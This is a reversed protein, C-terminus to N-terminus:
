GGKGANQGAQCPSGQDDIHTYARLCIHRDPNLPTRRVYTHHYIGPSTYQRHICVNWVWAGVVPVGRYDNYGDLNLGNKGEVASAAMLTLPQSNKDITPTYGELMNGGPDRIAINLIGREAPEIVGIDRLNHDFRSESILLGQRNFAYSEGSSGIRGQQLIETFEKEPDILLILVGPEGEEIPRILAGSMMVAKQQLSYGGKMWKGPLSIASFVPGTMARELFLRDEATVLRTGVLIKRDSGLVTGKSDVVLYGLYGQEIILLELFTLLNSQHRLNENKDSVNGQAEGTSSLGNFIRSLEPSHAWIRVEQEREQFWNQTAKATTQLVSNLSEKLDGREHAVLHVMNRWSLGTILAAVLISVLFLPWSTALTSLIFRKLTPGAEAGPATLDETALRKSSSMWMASLLLLLGVILVCGLGLLTAIWILETAELDLQEITQNTRQNVHQGVSDIIGM